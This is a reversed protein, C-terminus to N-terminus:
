AADSSGSASIVVTKAVMKKGNPTVKEQKNLWGNRTCIQYNMMAKLTAPLFFIIGSTVKYCHV